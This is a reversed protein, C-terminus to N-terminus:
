RVVWSKHQQVSLRWPPNEKVLKICWELVGTDLISGDFAPSILYHDALVVTKPIGQGYGRVYKVENAFVQEIAHEAVKPSVTVWDLGNVVKKSGNTEIAVYYGEKKFHSVLMSDLQLTPEGGTFIISKCEGGVKVVLDYLEDSTLSVSSVFETDCKFGGPSVESEKIDCKLNCGSFRIFVNSTGARIGEGQLSYFVENIAYKKM